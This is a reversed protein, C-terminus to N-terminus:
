SSPPPFTAGATLLPMVNTLELVDRIRGRPNTVRFGKGRGEAARRCGILAGIGSSDLFTVASLDAVVESVEDAALYSEMSARAASVAALDFDGSMAVRAVGASDTAGDVTFRVAVVYRGSM